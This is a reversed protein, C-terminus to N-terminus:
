FRTEELVLISQSVSSCESHIRTETEEGSDHILSVWNKFLAVSVYDKRLDNRGVAHHDGMVDAVAFSVRTNM